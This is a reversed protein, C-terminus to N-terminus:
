SENGEAHDAVPFSYFFDGMGGPSDRGTGNPPGDPGSERPVSPSQGTTGDDRGTTGNKRRKTTKSARGTKRGGPMAKSTTAQPVMQSANAQAKQLPEGVEPLCEALLWVSSGQRNGPRELAKGSEKLRVLSARGAENALKAHSALDRTALWTRGHQRLAREMRDDHSDATTPRSAKESARRENTEAREESAARHELCWVAGDAIGENFDLALAMGQGDSGGCNLWLRHVGRQEPDYPERRAMLHWSRCWQQFGAYAMDDLKPPTYNRGAGTAARNFHHILVVSAGATCLGSLPSLHDGMSFMNSAENGVGRLCLYVPDIVVVDIGVREVDRKLRAVVAPDSVDVVEFKWLINDGLERLTMGRSAAAKEAARKIASMGSEASVVVVRSKRCPSGLFETGSALAVVLDIVLLTKASKSPASLLHPKGRAIQCEVLWEVDCSAESLGACSLYGDFPTSSTAGTILEAPLIADLPINRDMVGAQIEGLRSIARRRNELDLLSEVHKKLYYSHPIADLYERVGDIGGVTALQGDRSLREAVRVVDVSGTEHWEALVANAVVKNPLTTFSSESLLHAYNEIQGPELMLEGLVAKEVNVDRLESKDKDV